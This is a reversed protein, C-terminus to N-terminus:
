GEQFNAIDQKDVILPMGVVAVLPDAEEAEMNLIIGKDEAGEEVVEPM